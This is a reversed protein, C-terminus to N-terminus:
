PAAAQPAPLAASSRSIKAAGRLREGLALFEARAKQEAIAQAALYRVTESDRPFYGHQQEDVRVIEWAAAADAPVPERVAAGNRGAPQAFVLGTFWDAEGNRALWGLEGGAVADPAISYHRALAAFNSSDAALQRSVQGATAEDRLRIHRARVRELRRFQERHADYWANVEAQTVAKRLAGVRAPTDHIDAGVGYHAALARVYERDLLNRQLEAIAAAGAQRAAWDVAVLAAVRAQVQARLFALDLQHLSIRGQVNQRAYIDALTLQGRTGGPLRYRALVLAAAAQANGPPLVYEVRIQQPDGLVRRLADADVAPSPLLVKELAAGAEVRLAAEIRGRYVAQLLGALKDEASVQPTFAVRQEAFLEQAPMAQAAHQALLRQQVIEDLLQAASIDRKDLEGYRLLLALGNRGIRAGDVVALTADDAAAPLPTAPQAATGTAATGAGHAIAAGPALLLAALGRWALCRLAPLKSAIAV